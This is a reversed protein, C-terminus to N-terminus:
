DINLASSTIGGDFAGGAWATGLAGIASQGIGSWMARSSTSDMADIQDATTERIVDANMKAREILNENEAEAVRKRVLEEIAAQNFKGILHILCLTKLQPSM